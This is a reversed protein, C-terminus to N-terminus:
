GDLLAALGHDRALDAAQLRHDTAEESGHALELLARVQEVV